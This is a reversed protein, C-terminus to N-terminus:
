FVAGRLPERGPVVRQLLSPNFYNLAYQAFTRLVDDSSDLYPILIRLVTEDRVALLSPLYDAMLEVPDAPASGALKALWSARQAATSPQIEIRTWESQQYSRNRPARWTVQTATYRVEYTGARNLSYVLHLPARGLYREPPEHPLGVKWPGLSPPVFPLETLIPIDRGAFRVEFKGPALAWPATWHPYRLSGRGVPMEVHIWVPMGVFAPEALSLVPRDVGFRVPVVASAGGPHIVRVNVTANEWAHDPVILNIQGSSTYLLRAPIDDFLVRVGCLETKYTSPDMVNAVSCNPGLNVGFIWVGIGPLLPRPEASGQPRIDRPEFHPAQAFACAVVVMLLFTRM